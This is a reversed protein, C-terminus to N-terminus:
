ESGEIAPVEIYEKFKVSSAEEQGLLKIPMTINFSMEAEVKAYIGYTIYKVDVNINNAKMDSFLGTGMADIKKETDDEIEDGVGSFNLYRYPKFDNSRNISGFSGNEKYYALMPNSQEAAYEIIYNNFIAQAKSRQYYLNGVFLLFIVVLFTVPFVITAEVVLSGRDNRSNEKM